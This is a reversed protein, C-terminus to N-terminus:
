GSTFPIEWDHLRLRVLPVHEAASGHEHRFAERQSRAKERGESDGDAYFFAEVYQPLNATTQPGDIIIENYQLRKKKVQWIAQRHLYTGFDSM